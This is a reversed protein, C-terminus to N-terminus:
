PLPHGWRLAAHGCRILRAVRFGVSGPTPLAAAPLSAIELRHGSDSIPHGARSCGPYTLPAQPTPSVAFWLAMAISTATIALLGLGPLLRALQEAPRPLLGRRVRHTPQM